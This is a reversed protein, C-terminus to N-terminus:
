RPTPFIPGNVSDSLIGLRLIVRGLEALATELEHKEEMQKRHIVVYQLRKSLEVPEAKTKELYDAAGAEKSPEEMDASGTLVIVGVDKGAAVVRKVVEIGNGDPLTLDLLVADIGGRELRSVAEGVKNVEEIEFKVEKRAELSTRVTFRTDESDEVLLVRIVEPLAM